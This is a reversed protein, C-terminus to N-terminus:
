LFYGKGSGFMPKNARCTLLDARGDGDIDRVWELQHYFWGSKEKTIRVKEGTEANLVFVGGNDKGAILLNLWWPNHMLFFLLLLMGPVLFGDPVTFKNKHDPIVSPPVPIVENPWQFGSAIKQPTIKPIDNLKSSIDPVIQVTGTQIFIFLFAEWFLM